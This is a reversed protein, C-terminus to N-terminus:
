TFCTPLTSHQTVFAQPKSTLFATVQM